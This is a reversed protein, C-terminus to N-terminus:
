VWGCKEARSLGERGGGETGYDIKQKNADRCLLAARKGRDREEERLLVRSLMVAFRIVVIRM